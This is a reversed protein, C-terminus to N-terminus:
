RARELSALVDGLVAYRRQTSAVKRCTSPVAITSSVLALIDRAPDLEHLRALLEADALANADTTRFWRSGLMGVPHSAVIVQSFGFQEHCVRAQALGAIATDSSTSLATSLPMEYWNTISKIKMGLSDYWACATRNDSLM